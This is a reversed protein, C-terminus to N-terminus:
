TSSISCMIIRMYSMTDERIEPPTDLIATIQETAFVGLLIFLISALGMVLSIQGIIRRVHAIKKRSTYQSVFAACATTFGASLCSIFWVIPFVNGTAAIANINDELKGVWFTDTLNYAM